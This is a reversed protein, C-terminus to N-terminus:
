SGNWLCSGNDNRRRLSPTGGGAICLSRGKGRRALHSIANSKKAVCISACIRVALVARFNKWCVHVKYGGQMWFHYNAGFWLGSRGREERSGHSGFIPSFGEIPRYNLMKMGRRINDLRIMDRELELWEVRSLTRYKRMM